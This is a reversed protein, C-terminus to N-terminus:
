PHVSMGFDRCLHLLGQNCCIQCHTTSAAILSVQNAAPNDVDFAGSGPDLTVNLVTGGGAGTFQTSVAALVPRLVFVPPRSALRAAEALTLPYASAQVAAANSIVSMEGNQHMVIAQM